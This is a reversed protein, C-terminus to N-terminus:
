TVCLPPMNTGTCTMFAYPPTSIYVWDNKVEARPPLLYYSGGAGKGTQKGGLFYGAKGETYSTPHAGSGTQASLLVSFDTALHYGFCSEETALGLV